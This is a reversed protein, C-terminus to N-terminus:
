RLEKRHKEFGNKLNAYINRANPTLRSVEMSPMFFTTKRSPSVGRALAFRYIWEDLKPFKHVLTLAWAELVPHALFFSIVSTLVARLTARFWRRITRPICGFAARTRQLVYLAAPPRPAIISNDVKREAHKTRM